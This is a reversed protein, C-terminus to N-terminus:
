LRTQMNFEIHRSVLGLDILSYVSFFPLSIIKFFFLFYSFGSFMCNLKISKIEEDV